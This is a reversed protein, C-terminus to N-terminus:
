KKLVDALLKPLNILIPPDEPIPGRLKVSYSHKFSAPFNLPEEYRGRLCDELQFYRLPNRSKEISCVLLYYKGDPIHQFSCRSAGTLAKGVVPKHNPIPGEFLGVFTIGPRYGEPYELFIDCANSSESDIESSYYTPSTNTEKEYEKVQEFLFNLQNRYQKPSLGTNKSFTTSFTGTSLYGANLQSHIISLKKELLESKAQEIKLAALYEAASFGTIKKFERSFHYKSYGFHDAINEIKLDNTVNNKMYTFIEHIMHKM